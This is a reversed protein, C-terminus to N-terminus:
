NNNIPSVSSHERDPSNLATSRSAQTNDIPVSSHQRDPSKLATSRSAPTNDVDLIPHSPILIVRNAGGGFGQKPPPGLGSQRPHPTGPGYTYAAAAERRAVAAERVGMVEEAQRQGAVLRKKVAVEREEEAVAREREGVVREAAAAATEEDKKKWKEVFARLAAVSGNAIKTFVHSLLAGLAAGYATQTQLPEVM